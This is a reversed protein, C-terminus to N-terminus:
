AIWGSKKAYRWEYHFIGECVWFRRTFVCHDVRFNQSKSILLGPRGDNDTKNRWYANQIRCGTVRVSEANVATIAKGNFFWRFNLNRLVVYPANSIALLTEPRTLGDLVVTNPYVGEIVLPQRATGGRNELHNPGVYVGPKIRVRDCPLTRDLAFQVTRFPKEISGNEEADNGDTAVYLIRPRGSLTFVGKLVTGQVTLRYAHTTEPAPGTVVTPVAREGAICTGAKIWQDGEQYEVEGSLNGDAKFSILAGYRSTVVRPEGVRHGPRAAPGPIRVVVAESWASGADQVEFYATHPGEPDPLEFTDSAKFARERRLGDDIGYRTKQAAAVPLVVLNAELNTGQRRGLTVRLTPPTKYDTPVQAFAGVGIHGGMRLAPSDALLRYDDQWPAAFRPDAYVNNSGCGWTPDKIAAVLASAGWFINDDIVADKGVEYDAQFGRGGVGTFINYRVKFGLDVQLAWSVNVLTNSEIVYHGPSGKSTIGFTFNKILNHRIVADEPKNYFRMGSQEIPSGGVCSFGQENVINCHEVVTDVGSIWLGTNNNRIRCNTILARASGVNVHFGFCCNSAQCSDIVTNTTFVGQRNRGRGALNPGISISAAGRGALFNRFELRQITVNDRLIQFGFPFGRSMRLEMDSPSVGEKCRIALTRDDLIASSFDACQVSNLAALKFFNRGTRADWLMPPEDSPFNGTVGYVGPSGKLPEVKGIRISGDFIAQENDASRILLRSTKSSRDIKVTKELFYVGGRVVIEAPAPQCEALEIAKSVTSVPSQITGPNTDLGNTAVYVTVLEQAVTRHPMAFVSVLCVALVVIRNRM